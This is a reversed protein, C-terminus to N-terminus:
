IENIKEVIGIEDIIGTIIGLHDINKSEIDEQQYNM